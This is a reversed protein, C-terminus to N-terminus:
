NLGLIINNYIHPDVPQEYSKFEHTKMFVTKRKIYLTLCESTKFQKFHYRVDPTNSLNKKDQYFSNPRTEFVIPTPRYSMNFFIFRTLRYVTLFFSVSGMPCFHSLDRIGHFLFCPVSGMFCFHSLALPVSFMRCIGHSLFPVSRMPCLGHFLFCPVYGMPCLHSLARPVSGISPVCNQLPPNRDQFQIFNDTFILFKLYFSPSLANRDQARSQVLENALIHKSKWSGHAPFFSHVLHYLLRLANIWGYQYLRACTRITFSSYVQM